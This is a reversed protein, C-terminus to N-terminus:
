FLGGGSDMDSEDTAKLKNINEEIEGLAIDEASIWPIFKSRITATPIKLTQLSQGISSVNTFVENM